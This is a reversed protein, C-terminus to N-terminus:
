LIFESSLFVGQQIRAGNWNFHASTRRFLASYNADDPKAPSTCWMRGEFSPFSCSRNGRWFCLSTIFSFGHGAWSQDTPQVTTTQCEFSVKDKNRSVDKKCKTVRVCTDRQKHAMWGCPLGALTAPARPNFAPNWSGLAGSSWLLWMHTNRSSKATYWPHLIACRCM